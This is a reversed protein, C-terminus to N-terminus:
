VSNDVGVNKRSRRKKSKPQRGFNAQDLMAQSVEQNDNVEKLSISDKSYRKLVPKDSHSHHVAICRFEASKLDQYYLDFHDYQGVWQRGPELVVPLTKPHVEGFFSVTGPEKKLGFWKRSFIQVTVFNITLTLRGINTVVVKVLEDNDHKLKIKQIVEVKLHPRESRQWKFFDWVLATSGTVAGIIALVDTANM